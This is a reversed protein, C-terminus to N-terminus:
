NELLWKHLPVFKIKGETREIDKTILILDKVKSFKKSFELLSETERKEIAPGFSVNVAKLGDEGKVAFDVERKSRWYYVEENRRALIGGVLNEALRGSDRSFKFAIRNRLGNDLAIIKSPNVRQEKLSYSFVPLLSFYGTEKIHNIYSYITERSSPITQKINKHYGNVSFLSAVNTFLYKLIDRLLETNEISFREALDRYVLLDYYEKLINRKLSAERELAVEPFGGFKLFEDLLKKIKYRQATYAFDRGPKEGRFRLFERFNLPHLAYSITRGRLSTAIERSLLKSSSGTIFIKVKEKDYIRRVYIEWSKVNQIEDFFFYVEKEKNDPFLEFYAETLENLDKFSLPLIRDDEFSVYAIRELSVGSQLLKKIVGYFYFSKGSRRPGFVTIIKKSNLPVDLEREIVDPLASEQFERILLKFIEKKSTEPKSM